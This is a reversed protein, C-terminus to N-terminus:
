AHGRRAAEAERVLPPPYVGDPFMLRATECWVGFRAYYDVILRRVGLSLGQYTATM